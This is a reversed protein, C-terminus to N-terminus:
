SNRLPVEKGYDDEDDNSDVKETEVIENENDLENIGEPKLKLAEESAHIKNNFVLLVIVGITVSADAINFIPWRTYAHGFLSFDFFEFNLFDVVKGYLLPGTGYIVGYFVRDILNGVAGGLILAISLRHVLIHDKIKYLYYILGGSAVVSFLSLFLKSTPGFDLGFAMGPNEVFTLKFFDGIVRISSGYDMFAKVIIKTAQDFIVVLLSVYIIRM